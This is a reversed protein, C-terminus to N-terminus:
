YYDELEDSSIDVYIEDNPGYVILQMSFDDYYLWGDEKLGKKMQKVLNMINIQMNLELNFIQDENLEKNLFIEFVAKNEIAYVNFGRGMGNSNAISDNFCKDIQQKIEPIELMEEITWDSYNDFDIDGWFNESSLDDNDSANDDDYNETEEIEEYNNDSVEDDSCAICSSFCLVSCILSVCFLLCFLRKFM